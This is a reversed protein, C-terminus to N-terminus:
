AVEFYAQPHECVPCNLPPKHAEHLFGCM